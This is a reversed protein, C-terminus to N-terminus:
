FPNAFLEVVSPKQSHQVFNLSSSGNDLQTNPEAGRELLLRTIPVAGSTTNRVAKYPPTEGKSNAANVDTDADLFLQVVEESDDQIAFHLTTFSEDCPVNVDAGEELLRATNTIRYEKAVRAAPTM